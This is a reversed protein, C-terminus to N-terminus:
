IEKRMQNFVNNNFNRSSNFFNNLTIHQPILNKETIINYGNLSHTKFCKVYNKKKLILSPLVKIQKHNKNIHTSLEQLKIPEFLWNYWNCNIYYKQLYYISFYLINIAKIKRRPFYSKQKLKFIKFEWESKLIRKPCTYLHNLNYFNNEYITYFYQKKM